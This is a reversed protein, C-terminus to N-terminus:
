SSPATALVFGGSTIMNGPLLDGKVAYSRLGNVPVLCSCCTLPSGEPSYVFMNACLPRGPIDPIMAGDNLINIYSDLNGNSNNNVNPIYRTHYTVDDNPVPGQETRSQPM